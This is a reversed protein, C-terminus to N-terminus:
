PELINELRRRCRASRPKLALGLAGSSRLRKLLRRKLAPDAKLRPRLAELRRLLWALDSARLDAQLRRRLDRALAPSAGGTSLTLQLGAARVVAPVRLDGQSPEAAQCVWAGRARGARAAAANVPAADACCFLLRCGRADGPRFPRPLLRVWARGRAWAKLAPAFRPAVVTARALGRPLGRLKQLAVAGGGVLLVRAGSLDLSAPYLAPPAM